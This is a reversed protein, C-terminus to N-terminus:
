TLSWNIKAYGADYQRKSKGRQRALEFRKPFEAEMQRKGRAEGKKVADREASSMSQPSSHITTTDDGLLPTEVLGRRGM